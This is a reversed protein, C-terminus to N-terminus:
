SINAGVVMLIIVLFLVAVGIRSAMASRKQLAGMQASLESSQPSQALQASLKAMKKMSSEQFATFIILVLLGLLAGAGIYPTGITSVAESTAVFTIYSYLVAGDVLAVIGMMLGFRIMRPIVIRGIDSRSGPSLKSALPLLVMTGVLAGGAWGVVAGVHIFLLTLYIYDIM